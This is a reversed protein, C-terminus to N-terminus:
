FYIPCAYDVLMINGSGVIEYPFTQTFTYWEKIFGAWKNFLIIRLTATEEDLRVAPNKWYSKLCTLPQPLTQLARVTELCSLGM